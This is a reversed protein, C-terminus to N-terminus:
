LPFLSLLGKNKNGRVVMHILDLSSFKILKSRSKHHPKRLGKSFNSEIGSASIPM